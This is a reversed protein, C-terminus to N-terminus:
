KKTNNETEKKLQLVEPVHENPVLISLVFQQLKWQKEKWLLTGSGRCLGMHNSDLVENFWVTQRDESFYIHRSQPRFEWAKGKKFYPLAFAHFEKFSWVESADTGVFVANTDFFSFYRPANAQTAALHWDDLLQHIEQHLVKNEQAYIPNGLFISLCLFLLIKQMHRLM